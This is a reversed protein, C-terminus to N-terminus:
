MKSLSDSEMNYERSIWEFKIDTFHPLIETKTKLWAKIYSGPKKGIKWKGSAQNIVLKSDGKVLISKNNLHLTLLRKLCSFLALHEALNNTNTPTAKIKHNFKLDLNPGNITWGIGMKGGPNKPECSGDFTAEIM